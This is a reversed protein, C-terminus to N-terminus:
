FRDDHSARALRRKLVTIEKTSKLMTAFAVAMWFLSTATTAITLIEIDTM